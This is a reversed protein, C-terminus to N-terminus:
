KNEAFVGERLAFGWSHMLKLILFFVYLFDYAPLLKREFKLVGRQMASRKMSCFDKVADGLTLESAVASAVFSDMSENLKHYVLDTGNKTGAGYQDAERLKADVGSGLRLIQAKAAVRHLADGISVPRINKVVRAPVFGSGDKDLAVGRNSVLLAHLEAHYAACDELGDVLRSYDWRGQGFWVRLLPRVTAADMRALLDFGLGSVGAAATTDCLQLAYELTDEMRSDVNPGIIECEGLEFKYVASGTEAGGSEVVFERWGAIPPENNPRLFASFSDRVAAEGLPVVGGSTVAGLAKSVKVLHALEMARRVPDVQGGQPGALEAAAAAEDFLAEFEGRYLRDVHEKVVKAWPARVQSPALASRHRGLIVWM